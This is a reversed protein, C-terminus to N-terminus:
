KATSDLDATARMILGVRGGETERALQARVQEVQQGPPSLVATPAAAAAASMRVAQRRVVSTALCPAAAARQVSGCPQCRPVTMRYAATVPATCSLRQQQVRRGLMTAM